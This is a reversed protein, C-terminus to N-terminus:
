VRVWIGGGVIRLERGSNSIESEVMGSVARLSTQRTAKSQRDNKHDVATMRKKRDHGRLCTEDTGMENNSAITAINVKTKEV